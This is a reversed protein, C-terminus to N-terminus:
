RRATEFKQLDLTPDSDRDRLGFVAFLRPRASFFAPRTTEWLRANVMQWGSKSRLYDSYILLQYMSNGKREEERCKKADSIAFRRFKMKRFSGLPQRYEKINGEGDRFFSASLHRALLHVTDPVSDPQEM